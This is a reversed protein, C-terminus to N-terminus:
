SFILVKHILWQLIGDQVCVWHLIRGVQSCAKRLFRVKYRAKRFVDVQDDRLFGPIRGKHGDQQPSRDGDQCLQGYPDQEYQFLIRRWPHLPQRRHQERSGLLPKRLCIGWPPPARRVLRFSVM